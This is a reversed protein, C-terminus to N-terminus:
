FKKCARWMIQRGNLSEALTPDKQQIERSDQNAYHRKRCGEDYIVRNMGVNDM